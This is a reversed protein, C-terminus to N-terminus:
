LYIGHWNKPENRRKTKELYSINVWLHTLTMAHVIKFTSRDLIKHHQTVSKEWTETISFIKRLLNKNWTLNNNLFINTRTLNKFVPFVFAHIVLISITFQLSVYLVSEIKLSTKATLYICCVIAATSYNLVKKRFSGTIVIGSNSTPCIYSQNMHRCLHKLTYEERPSYFYKKRPM